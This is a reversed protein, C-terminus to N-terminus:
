AFLVIDKEIGAYEILAKPLLLRNAPDLDMETAGRNFKRIFDRNKRIYLNLDNIEASIRDWEKRTYIVLHKEMGRHIVFHKQEKVPIQKKLSGPLLFRGKADMSCPFEGIYGAM